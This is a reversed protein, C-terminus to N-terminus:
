RPSRRRGGRRSRGRAMESEEFVDPSFWEVLHAIPDDGSSPLMLYERAPVLADPGPSGALVTGWRGAPVRGWKAVQRTTVVGAEHLTRGLPDDTTALTHRVSEPVRELVAVVTSAGWVERGTLLVERILLSDDGDPRLGAVARSVQRGIPEGSTGTYEDGAEIVALDQDGALVWHSRVSVTIRDGTLVELSTTTLGDGRLVLQVVRGLGPLEDSAGTTM